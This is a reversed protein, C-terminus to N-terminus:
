VPSVVDYLYPAVGGQFQLTDPAVGGPPAPPVMMSLPAGGPPQYVFQNIFKLPITDASGVYTIRKANPEYYVISYLLYLNTSQLISEVTYYNGNIDRLTRNGQAFLSNLLTYLYFTGGQNIPVAITPLSFTLQPFQPTWTKWNNAVFQLMTVELQSNYGMVGLTDQRLQGIYAECLAAQSLAVVQVMGNPWWETANAHQPQAINLHDGSYNFIVEEPIQDEGSSTNNYNNYAIGFQSGGAQFLWQSWQVAIKETTSNNPFIPSFFEATLRTKRFYGGFMAIIQQFSQYVLALGTVGNVTIQSLANNDAISSCFGMGHERGFGACNIAALFPNNDYRDAISSILYSLFFQYVQDWPYPFPGNPNTTNFLPTGSNLLWPPSFSGMVLIINIFRGNAEALSIGADIYSWDFDVEPNWTPPNPQIYKWDIRLTVGGVFPLSWGLASPLAAVSDGRPPIGPPRQWVPRLETLGQPLYKLNNDQTLGVGLAAPLSFIIISAAPSFHYNVPAATFPGASPVANVALVAGSGSQVETWGPQLTVQSAAANGFVMAVVMDYAHPLTTNIFPNPQSGPVFASGQIGPPNNIVPNSVIFPAFPAIFLNAASVSATATVTLPTGTINTVPNTCEFIACSNAISPAMTPASQSLLQTYVNGADDTVTITALGQWAVAVFVPTGQPLPFNLAASNSSSAGPTFASSSDWIGAAATIPSFGM